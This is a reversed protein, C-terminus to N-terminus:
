VAVPAPTADAPAPIVVAQQNSALANALHDLDRTLEGIAVGDRAIRQMAADLSARLQAIEQEKPDAAMPATDGTQAKLNDIASQIDEGRPEPYMEEINAIQKRKHDITLQDLDM